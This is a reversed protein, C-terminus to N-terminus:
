VIDMYSLLKEPHFPIQKREERPLMKIKKYNKDAHVWVIHKDDEQFDSEKVEKLYIDMKECVRIQSLRAFFESELEGMKNFIHRFDEKRGESMVAILVFHSVEHSLVPYFLTGKLNDTWGLFYPYAYKCPFIIEGGPIYKASGGAIRDKIGVKPLNPYIYDENIFFFSNIIDVMNEVSSNAEDCLKDIFKKYRSSNGENVEYKPEWFDKKNEIPNWM